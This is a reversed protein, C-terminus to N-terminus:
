TSRRIKSNISQMVEIAAAHAANQRDAKELALKLDAVRNEEAKRVERYFYYTLGWPMVFAMAIIIGVIAGMGGDAIFRAIGVIASALDGM